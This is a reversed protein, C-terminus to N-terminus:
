YSAVSQYSKHTEEKVFSNKKESTSHANDSMKSSTLLEKQPTILLFLKLSLFASFLVILMRQILLWPLIVDQFEDSEHYRPAKKDRVYDNLLFLWVTSLWM